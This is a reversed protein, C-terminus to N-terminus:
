TSRGEFAAVLEDPLHTDFDRAIRLKGKWGGPARRPRSAAVLKARPEGNKAIVIEEGRAAREVLDSLETKAEYLNYITSTKRPRTMQDINVLWAFLTM